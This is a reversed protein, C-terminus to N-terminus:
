HVAELMAIAHREAARANESRHVRRVETIQEGITLYPNLAAMPDQFVIGIRAGRIRRLAAADAGILEQGEFRVSGRLRAGPGNLQLLALLLQSKGCGSEGVLGLTEGPHLQLDVGRVVEVEGHASPYAVSLQRVELLPASANQM